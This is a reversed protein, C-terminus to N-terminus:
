DLLYESFYQVYLPNDRLHAACKGADNNRRYYKLLEPSIDESNFTRGPKVRDLLKATKKLKNNNYLLWKGYKRFGANYVRKGFPSLSRSIISSIRPYWYIELASLSEHVKGISIKAPLMNLRDEIISLFQAQDDRLLEYPLVIVNQKGFAKEYIDILLSYNLGGGDETFGVKTFDKISLTGGHRIYESYGSTIIEKFGRTIILIKGDPYLSSLIECVNKQAQEKSILDALNQEGSNITTGSVLSPISLEEGSTVFYKIDRGKQDAALRSIEYTNYFGALGNPSYHMQPHLSFWEQLFTSGTKPFGIHILHNPM